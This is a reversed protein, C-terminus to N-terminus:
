TEVEPLAGQTPALRCVPGYGARKSALALRGVLDLGLIRRRGSADPSSPQRPPLLVLCPGAGAMRGPAPQADLTKMTLSEHLALQCPRCPHTFPGRRPRIGRRAERAPGAPSIGVMRAPDAMAAAM